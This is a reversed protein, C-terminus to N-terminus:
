GKALLEVIKVIVQTAKELSEVPVYEYKGHANHGGTFINPTPLGKYTMQAGDTGGRIPIVLPTIGLEEMARRALDIIHMVPEIRERMNRYQDRLTLSVTGPGYKANLYEVAQTILRKQAEFKTADHERLIYHLETHEVSGQFAGLHYFGEYKETFQPRQQAPLMGDLEMGILISNVMKNKATGPHVGLGKIVISAACANFNEYQLEGVEGGDLTYAFDAGFTEADFYAMGTGTEEDPSFVVRVAGHEIEPHESLYRLASMIEAIGAKDDAGLLTTGDTTILTQGIYKKLDPFQRPSLVVNAAHNLVLDGGDYDPVMQPNVNKGSMDESTDIHAAFGVVPVARSVNAPLTATVFCHEDLRVDQLGLANLEDVLLRALDFQTQTTPCGQGSHTSQTDIRVYRLFREVVDQM